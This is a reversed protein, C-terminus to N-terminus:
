DCSWGLATRRTTSSRRISSHVTRPICHPFFSSNAAGPLFSHYSSFFPFVAALMCSRCTHPPKIHCLLFFHLLRLFINPRCCQPLKIQRLMNSTQVAVTPLLGLAQFSKKNSITLKADLHRRLVVVHHQFILDLTRRQHDVLPRHGHCLGDKWITQAYSPQTCALDSTASFTASGNYGQRGITQVWRREM